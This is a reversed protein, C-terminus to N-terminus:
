GGAPSEPKNLLQAVVNFSFTLPPNITGAGQPALKNVTISFDCFISSGASLQGFPNLVTDIDPICDDKNPLGQGTELTIGAPLAQKLLLAVEVPLTGKNTLIGWIHCNFGPYGNTISIAVKQPVSTDVTCRAIDKGKAETECPNSGDACSSVGDLAWNVDVTGTQVNGNVNIRDVWSGYILGLTALAGVVGLFLLGTIASKRRM